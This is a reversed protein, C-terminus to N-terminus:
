GRREDTEYVSARDLQAVGAVARVTARLGIKDVQSGAKVRNKGFWHGIPTRNRLVVKPSGTRDWIEDTM